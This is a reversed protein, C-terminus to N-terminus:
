ECGIAKNVDEIPIEYSESFLYKNAKGSPFPCKGRKKADDNIKKIMEYAMSNSCEMLATIDEPIVFVRAAKKVVGPAATLDGHVGEKLEMYMDQLVSFYNQRDERNVICNLAYNLAEIREAKEKMTVHM